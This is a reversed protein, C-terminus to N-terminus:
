GKIVTQANLEVFYRPTQGEKQVKKGTIEFSVIVWNGIKIDDLQKGRENKFFYIVQNSYNGTFVEMVLGRKTLKENIYQPALVEIVKGALQFGNEQKQTAM